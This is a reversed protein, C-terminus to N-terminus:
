NVVVSLYGARVGPRNMVLIVTTLVNGTDGTADNFRPNAVFSDLAASVTRSVEPSWALEDTLHYFEVFLGAQLFYFLNNLAAAGTGDYSAGIRGAARAVDIMNDEQFAAVRIAIPADNFLDSICGFDFTRLHAVLAAGTKAVLEDFDCDSVDAVRAKATDRTPPLLRPTPM